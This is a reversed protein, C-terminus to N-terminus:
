EYYEVPGLWRPWGGGSTTPEYVTWTLNKGGRGCLELIAKSYRKRINTWALRKVRAPGETSEFFRIALVDSPYEEDGPELTGVLMLMM